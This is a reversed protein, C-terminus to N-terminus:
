CEGLLLESDDVNDNYVYKGKGQWRIRNSAVLEITHPYLRHEIELVRAALTKVDDDPKVPTIGRAIIPGVDLEATVFHTSCGHYTVKGELARKHTDLGIFSPLVSPHINIIRGEWKNVFSESLVRMYGALCIMETGIDQLVEDIADEHKEKSEFDEYEFCETYMNKQEAWKLGEADKKNSVVAVIEAPYDDDETAQALSQMNSGRGSILVAIKQKEM